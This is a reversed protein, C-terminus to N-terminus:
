PTAGVAAALRLLDGVSEIDSLEDEDFVVDLAEEIEYVVEMLQTSSMGLETVRLNDHVATSAVGIADAIRRRVIDELGGSVTVSM